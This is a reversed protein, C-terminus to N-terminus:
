PCGGEYKIQADVDRRFDKRQSIENIEEVPIKLVTQLYKMQLEAGQSPTIRGSRVVCLTRATIGVVKAYTVEDFAWCTQDSILLGVLASIAIALSKPTAAMFRNGPKM